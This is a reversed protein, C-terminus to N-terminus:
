LLSANTTRFPCNKTSKNSNRCVVVYRCGILIRKYRSGCSCRCRSDQTKLASKRENNQMEYMSQAVLQKSQQMALQKAKMRANNEKVIDIFPKGEREEIAKVIEKTMSIQSGCSM